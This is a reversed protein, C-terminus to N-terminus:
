SMKILCDGYLDLTGGQTNYPIIVGNTTITLFGGNIFNIYLAIQPIWKSDLTGIATGHTTPYGTFHFSLYKGNKTELGKITGNGFANEWVGIAAMVANSTVAQMNNAAVEDVPLSSVVVWREISTNGDTISIYMLDLCIGAPWDGVYDGNPYTIPIAGTGALNLTPVSATNAASFYIHVTRGNVLSFDPCSEPALTAVKAATAAATACVAIPLAQLLAKSVGKDADNVTGPLHRTQFMDSDSLTTLTLRESSTAGKYRTTAM